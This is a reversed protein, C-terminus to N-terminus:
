KEAAPQLPRADLGFESAAAIVAHWLIEAMSRPGALYFEAAGDVDARRWVHGAIHAIPTMAVDDVAFVSPHVDIGVLKMLVRRAQPGSVRLIVRADTQDSCAAMGSLATGLSALRSAGDVADSMVLWQGAGSWVIEIGASAVRRPKTPLEIGLVSRVTTAVTEAKGRRAIVLVSAGCPLEAVRVGPVQGTSTTSVAHAGALASRGIWHSDGM